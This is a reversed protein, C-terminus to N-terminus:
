YGKLYDTTCVQIFEHGGSKDPMGTFIQDPNQNLWAVTCEHGDKNRVGPNLHLKRYKCYAKLKEMFKAPTLHKADQKMSIYCNEFMNRRVTRVNLYCHEGTGDSFVEDAWILFNEGMTQRLRRMEIDRGPPEIIGKGSGVWNNEISQFYLSVANAMLNYFLNWQTQDWESFFNHGFDDIPKHEDNYHDSFVVIAQRDRFSSTDGNIAHNTTILIKPVEAGKLSFRQAGKANINLYGTIAPFLMEFDFNVRVDDFFILRTKETVGGFIFQDEDMRKSKGAMTETPIVYELAKGILSKGSRGNSSGVESLKGDMAVVAKQESDNVFNHMLYGLATLKNLLHSNLEIGEHVSLTHLPRKTFNCTHMLFQLFECKAAKASFDVSFDGAKIGAMSPDAAIAQAAMTETIREVSILPEFATVDADIIKDDWVHAEFQPYLTEKIGDATVKWIKDRFFLNQSYKTAKEITPFVYRLNSLRDPGLFQSGGRYLMNLVDKRKLEKAFETVFDRVDNHSQTTIVHNEVRIFEFNGNKLKFRGFGRAELFNYCNAYDFQLTIKTHGEKGERHEEEWFQEGPLLPQDLVLIGNEDFRRLLRGIKFNTLQRLQERHLEVFKETDNLLWIDAIKGDDITTIKHLTIYQGVGNKIDYTARIDEVVAKENATHRVLLDDIGKDKEPNPNVHAFYIEVSLGINRLTRMYEKYNKVAYFFNRPRQDASKGNEVSGLDMYDSDLLFCVNKVGCRQIILQIEEPLKKDTGAINQIGMIAVSHLGHKCAKEAKKEGEQIYLTDFQRHARYISRMREPIYIHNGSGAPSEYKIPKGRKDLHAEPNSWRVRILPKYRNTKTQKYMVQKGELDFYKILMDGGTGEIIDYYNNRTGQLIAVTQRETGDSDHSTVRVDEFTLGSAHLQIEAFSLSRPGADPAAAEPTLTISHNQALAEIAPLFDVNHIKMYYNVPSTITLDCGFCKAIQKEPNLMLGKKKKEDHLGCDPCKCYLQKGHAKQLDAIVNQLPIASVREISEKTYKM